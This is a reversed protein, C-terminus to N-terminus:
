GAMGIQTEKLSTAPGIPLAVGPVDTDQSALDILLLNAPIVELTAELIDVFDPCFLDRKHFAIRFNFKLEHCFYYVHCM